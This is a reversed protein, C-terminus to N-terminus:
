SNSKNAEEFEDIYKLLENTTIFDMFGKKSLGKILKKDGTWLKGEIYLSLAVHM